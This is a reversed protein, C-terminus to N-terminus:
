DDDLTLDISTEPEEIRRLQQVTEDPSSVVAETITSAVRTSPAAQIKMLDSIVKAELQDKSWQYYEHDFAVRNKTIVCFAEVGRGGKIATGSFGNQYSGNFFTRAFKRAGPLGGLSRDTYTFSEFPSKLFAEVLPHNPLRASPMHWSFVPEGKASLSTAAREGVLLQLGSMGVQVLCSEGFQM